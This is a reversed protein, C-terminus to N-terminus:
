RRRISVDRNDHIINVNSLDYYGVFVKICENMIEFMKNRNISDFVIRDLFNLYIYEVQKAITNLDSLAVKERFLGSVMIIEKVLEENAHNLYYNYLEKIIAKKENSVRSVPMMDVIMKVYSSTNTYYDFSIREFENNEM